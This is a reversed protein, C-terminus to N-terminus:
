AVVVALKPAPRVVPTPRRARLKERAREWERLVAFDVPHRSSTLIVQLGLRERINFLVPARLNVTMSEPRSPPVNVVVAVALDEPFRLRLQRLEGPPIAADYDPLFFHPDALVFALEPDDASQLWKFAQGDREVVVFRHAQEFGPLGRPFEFLLDDAVEIRGFRTSEISAM